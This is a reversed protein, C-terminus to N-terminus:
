NLRIKILKSLVLYVSDMKSYLFELSIMLDLRSKITKYLNSKRKLMM